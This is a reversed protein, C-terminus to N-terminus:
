PSSRQKQRAIAESALQDCRENYVDGAHGPVWRWQVHHRQVLADLRQWLDLNKVAGRKRKWGRQKWSPLWTTIGKELYESDTHLTVACPRKLAELAAVAATLEMRNNTTRPEGGSLEKGKGKCLLIAAWGGIGPNPDCGGDTYVIVREAKGAVM